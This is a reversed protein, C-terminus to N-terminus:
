ECILSSVRKNDSHLKINGGLGYNILLFDKNKGIQMGTMDKIRNNLVNNVEKELIVYKMSNKPHESRDHRLTSLDIAKVEQIESDYIVDHFLVVYPDLSLTEM